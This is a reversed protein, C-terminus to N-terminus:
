GGSVGWVSYNGGSFTGGTPAGNTFVIASHTESANDISQRGWGFFENINANVFNHMQSYSGSSHPDHVFMLADVPRGNESSHYMYSEQLATGGKSSHYYFNNTILTGGSDKYRSSFGTSTTGVNVFQIIYMRYTGTFSVEITSTGPSVSANDVLLTTAGGVGAAGLAAATTADVSAINSLARSDDIVTTGNVKIAM